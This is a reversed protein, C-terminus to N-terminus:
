HAHQFHAHLWPTYQPILLAALVLGGVVVGTLSIVRGASGWPDSSWQRAVRDRSLSSPLEPLHGLVHVATVAIWVIFSIKHFPLLASRSSPGEFLLMVGTVFVVLTSAVVLPALMRMYAYPPGKRRYEANHTYYRAFRWGTSAMKLAVPGILALGLFLHLWLLGKLDIITLGLVALLVLLAAGVLATLHENGTSGSASVRTLASTQLGHMPHVSAQQELAM